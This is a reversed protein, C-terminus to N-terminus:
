FEDGGIPKGDGRACLKMLTQLTISDRIFRVSGDGLCVNAGGSHFAYIEGQNSCNIRCATPIDAVTSLTSGAANSGDVAIDNGSHAWAGNMYTVDAQRAGLRWNEPRAGAESLMITNSLGDTVTLIPTFVNSGLVAAIGDAGPYSGDNFIANWVAARNNARNVAMYDTTAPAWGSGYIAPELIPDIIHGYAVSPCEYLPIRTAAARRNNPDFWDRRFDYAIGSSQLVNGQEVYPLIIALFCHKAIDNASTGPSGVKRFDGLNALNAATPAGFLQVSSPPFANRVGEYNHLALGIQKLNNQCKARAAAERVKQVAPLLLGILVAIIAIVVLLEILTFASRRSPHPRAASM